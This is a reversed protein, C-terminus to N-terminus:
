SGKATNPLGVAAPGHSLMGGSRGYARTVLANQCRSVLVTTSPTDSACPSFFPLPLLRLRPMM